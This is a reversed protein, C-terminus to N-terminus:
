VCVIAREEDIRDDHNPRDACHMCLWCSVFSRYKQPCRTLVFSRYKDCNKLYPKKRLKTILMNNQIDIKRSKLM